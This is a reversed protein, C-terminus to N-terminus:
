CQCVAIALWRGIVPLLAHEDSDFADSKFSAHPQPQRREGSCLRKSSVRHVSTSCHKRLLHSEGRCLQFTYATTAHVITSALLLSAEDYAIDYAYCRSAQVLSTTPPTTGKTTGPIGGHARTQAECIYEATILILNNNPITEQKYHRQM